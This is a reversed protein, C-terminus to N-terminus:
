ASASRRVAVIPAVTAGTARILDSGRLKLLSSPEGGHFYVIEDGALSEDVVVRFREPLGVPPIAEAFYETLQSAVAQTTPDVRDADLAAAVARADARRGSPVVAAVPGEGSRFVVVRGVQGPPLGLVSAIREPTRLRGRAPVLEFAVERETLFNHVDVSTRM